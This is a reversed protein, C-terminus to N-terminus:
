FYSDVLTHRLNQNAKQETLQHVASPLDGPDIPGQPHFVTLGSCVIADAIHTTSPHELRCTNPLLAGSPASEPRAPCVGDKPAIQCSGKPIANGRAVERSAIRILVDDETRSWTGLRVISGEDLILKIPLKSRTRTFSTAVEAYVGERYLIVLTGKAYRLGDNHSPDVAKRWHLDTVFIRSPDLDNEQACAATGISLVFGGSVPLFLLGGIQRVLATPKLM